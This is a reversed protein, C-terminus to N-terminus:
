LSRNSRLAPRQEKDQRAARSIEAASATITAHRLLLIRGVIATPMVESHTNCATIPYPHPDVRNKM